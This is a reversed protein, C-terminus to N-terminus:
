DGFGVIFQDLIIAVFNNAQKQSRQIQIKIKETRAREWQFERDCLTQETRTGRYPCLISNKKGLWIYGTKTHTNQKRTENSKVVKPHGQASLGM